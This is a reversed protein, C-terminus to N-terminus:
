GKRMNELPDLIKARLCDDQVNSKSLRIFREWEDIADEKKWLSPSSMHCMGCELWYRANSGQELDEYGYLLHVSYHEMRIGDSYCYPYDEYHLCHPCEFDTSDKSIIDMTYGRTSNRPMAQKKDKM